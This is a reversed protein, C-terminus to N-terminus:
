THQRLVTLMTQQQGTQQTQKEMQILNTTALLLIVFEQEVIELQEQPKLSADLMHELTLISLLEKMMFPRGHPTELLINLRPVMDMQLGANMVQKSAQLYHLLSANDM